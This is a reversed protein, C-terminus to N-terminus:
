GIKKASSSAKFLEPVSCVFDINLLKQILQNKANVRPIFQAEYVGPIQKVSYEKDVSLTGDAVQYGRENSDVIVPELDDNFLYQLKIGAIQKNTKPDIFDYKRANLIIIKM